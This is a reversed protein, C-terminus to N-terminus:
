NASRRDGSSSPAHGKVEVDEVDWYGKSLEAKLWRDLISLAGNLGEDGLDGKQVVIYGHVGNGNTSAEYYLNPFRTAKLHEAFAVAGALRAM